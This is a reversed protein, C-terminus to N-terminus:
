QICEIDLILCVSSNSTFKHFQKRAHDINRAFVEFELTRMGRFFYCSTIKFKKMFEGVKWYFCKKIPYQKLDIKYKM